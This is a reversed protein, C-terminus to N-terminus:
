RQRGCGFSLILGDVFTLAKVPNAMLASMSIQGLERKLSLVLPSLCDDFIHKLTEEANRCCRCLSDDDMKLRARFRGMLLSEGTRLRALTVQKARSLGVNINRCTLTRLLFGRDYATLLEIM